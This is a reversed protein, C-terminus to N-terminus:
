RTERMVRRTQVSAPCDVSEKKWGFPAVLFLWFTKEPPFAAPRLRNGPDTLITAPSPLSFLLPPARYIVPSSPEINRPKIPVATSDRRKQEAYSAASRPEAVTEFRNLSNGSFACEAKEAFETCVDRGARQM